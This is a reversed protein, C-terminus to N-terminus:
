RDLLDLTTTGPSLHIWAEVDQMPTPAKVLGQSLARERSSHPAELGLYRDIAERVLEHESRGSRTAAARLATAARESLWLNM